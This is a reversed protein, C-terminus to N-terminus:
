NIKIGSRLEETSHGNKEALRFQYMIRNELFFEAWNVNQPVNIQDTSGIFNDEFYGFKTSTNKHLQALQQGFKEMFNDVPKASEIFELFLFEDNFKLM